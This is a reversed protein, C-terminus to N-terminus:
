HPSPRDVLVLGSALADAAFERRACEPCYPLLEGCSNSWYAWRERVAVFEDVQRHCETCRVTGEDM